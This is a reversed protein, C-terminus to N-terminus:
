QSSSGAAPEEKKAVEYLSLARLLYRDEIM